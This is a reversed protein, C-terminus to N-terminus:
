RAVCPHGCKDRHLPVHVSLCCFFGFLPVFPTAFRGAGCREVRWFPFSRAPPVELKIHATSSVGFYGVVAVLVVASGTCSLDAAWIRKQVQSLYPLITNGMPIKLFAVSWTSKADLDRAALTLVVPVFGASGLGRRLILAGLSATLFCRVRM